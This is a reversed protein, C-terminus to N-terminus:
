PAAGRGPATVCGLGAAVSRSEVCVVSDISQRVNRNLTVTSLSNQQLDDVPDSQGLPLDSTMGLECRFFLTESALPQEARKRSRPIAQVPGLPRLQQFLATASKM